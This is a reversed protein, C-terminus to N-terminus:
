LVDNKMLYYVWYSTEDWFGKMCYSVNMQAFRTSAPCLSVDMISNRITMSKLRHNSLKITAKWKIGIFSIYKTFITLLMNIFVCQIPDYGHTLKWENFWVWEWFCGNKRPKQVHKQHFLLISSGPFFSETKVHLSWVCLSREWELSWVSEKESQRLPLWM